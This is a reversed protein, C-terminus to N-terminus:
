VVGAEELILSGKKSDLTARVGLPLTFKNKSHGFPFNLAVPFPARGFFDQFIRKLPMTFSARPPRECDKFDALILGAIRELVGALRLQAFYGDIRHPYESIDELFLIAGDFAPQYPTGFLKVILSLNGGLLPGTAVGPRMFKPRMGKPFPVKGFPTKSTLVNLLNHRNYAAGFDAAMPGHFSCLGTKKFLALHIATIDSFGVFIKPNKRILDFDIKDLMRLAGYGGRACIVADVESDAFARNFLRARVDDPGSLYGYKLKSSLFLKVKFGTKALWKLGRRLQADKAWSSPAVIGVTAEPFLAKPKVLKM